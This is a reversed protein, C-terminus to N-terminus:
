VIQFLVRLLCVNLMNVQVQYEWVATLILILLKDNVGQTLVETVTWHSLSLAQLPGLDAPVM